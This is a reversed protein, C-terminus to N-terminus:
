FYGPSSMESSKVVEELSKIFLSGLGFGLSETVDDVGLFDEQFTEPDMGSILSAISKRLVEALESLRRSWDVEPDVERPVHPHYAIRLGHIGHMGNMGLLHAAKAPIETTPRYPTDRRMKPSKRAADPTMLSTAFIHALIYAYLSSRMSHSSKPFIRHLPQLDPPPLAQYLRSHPIHFDHAPAAVEMRRTTPRSTSTLFSFSVSRRLNSFNSSRRRRIITEPPPQDQDPSSWTRFEDSLKLNQHGTSPQVLQSRIALICPTDPQLTAAPFHLALNELATLLDNVSEAPLEVQDEQDLTGAIPSAPPSSM